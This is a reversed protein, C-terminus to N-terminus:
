LIGYGTGIKGGNLLHRKMSKQLRTNEPLDTISVNRTKFVWDMYETDLYDVRQVNFRHQFAIIKSDPPLLSCLEPALLWSHCIYDVGHYEPFHEAFFDKANKLSTDCRSDTLISDSPIHISIAPASDTCIMEYELEGIRFLNGSVQRVTWWERDFAYQGTIEKCEAIFRTFCRMTDFFIAESIGKKQYWTYLDSACALMCTLMKFKKPDEGLSQELKSRTDNETEMNRLGNILPRIQNFHDTHFYNVVEKRVEEQLNIKNCLTKLDM